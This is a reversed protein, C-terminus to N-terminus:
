LLKNEGLFSKTHFPKIGQDFFDSLMLVCKNMIKEAVGFVYTEIISLKANFNIICTCYWLLLSHRGFLKIQITVALSKTWVEQHLVSRVPFYYEIAKRNAHNYSKMWRSLVVSSGQVTYQYTGFFLRPFVQETAKM